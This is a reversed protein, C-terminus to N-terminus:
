NLLDLNKSSNRYSSLVRSILLLSRYGPLPHYDSINSVRYHLSDVKPDNHGALRKDKSYIRGTHNHHVHKVKQNQIPGGLRPLSGIWSKYKKTTFLDIFFDISWYITCFFIFKINYTREILKTIIKCYPHITM